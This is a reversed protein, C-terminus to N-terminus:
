KKLSNQKSQAVTVNAQKSQQNQAQQQTALKQIKDKVENMHEPMSATQQKKNKPGGGGGENSRGVEFFQGGLTQLTNIIDYLNDNQCKIHLLIQEGRKKLMDQVDEKPANQFHQAINKINEWHPIGM